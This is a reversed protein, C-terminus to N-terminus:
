IECRFMDLVHVSALWCAYLVTHVSRLYLTCAQTGEQRYRALLHQGM